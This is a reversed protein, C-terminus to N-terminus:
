ITSLRNHLTCPNTRLQNGKNSCQIADLVLLELYLSKAEWPEAAETINNLYYLYPVINKAPGAIASVTRDSNLEYDNTSYRSTLEEHVHCDGLSM